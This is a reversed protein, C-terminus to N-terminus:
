SSQISLAPRLIKRASIPPIRHGFGRHSIEDLSQDGNQRSIRNVKDQNRVQRGSRPVQRIMDVSSQRDIEPKAKHNKSDELSNRSASSPFGSEVFPLRSLAKM